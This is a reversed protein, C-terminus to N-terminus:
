LLCYGSVHSRSNRTYGISEGNDKLDSRSVLSVLQLLWGVRHLFFFLFSFFLFTQIRYRMTKPSITPLHIVDTNSSINRTRRLCQAFLLSTERRCLNSLAVYLRAHNKIYHRYLLIDSLCSSPMCVQRPEIFREVWVIPKIICVFCLEGFLLGYFIAKVWILNKSSVSTIWIFYLQNIYNWKDRRM